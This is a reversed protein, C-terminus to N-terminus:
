YETITIILSKFHLILTEISKLDCTKLHFILKNLMVIQKKSINNQFFIQDSNYIPFISIFVLMFLRLLLYM